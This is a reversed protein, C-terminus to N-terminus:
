ELTVKGQGTKLAKTAQAARAAAQAELEAANPSQPQVIVQKNHAGTGVGKAECEDSCYIFTRGDMTKVTRTANLWVNDAFAQKASEQTHLFTITKDCGSGDCSVTVYSTVIESM